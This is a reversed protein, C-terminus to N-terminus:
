RRIASRGTMTGLAENWEPSDLPMVNVGVHLTHQAAGLESPPKAGRGLGGWLIRHVPLARARLPVDLPLRNKM